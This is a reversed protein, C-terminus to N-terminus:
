RMRWIRLWFYVIAWLVAFGFPAFVLAPGGIPDAIWVWLVVGGFIAASLLISIALNQM